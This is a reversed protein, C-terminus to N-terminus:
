IELYCDRYIIETYCDDRLVYEICCESYEEKIKNLNKVTDENNVKVSFLKIMVEEEFEEEEPIDHSEKSYKTESQYTWGNKQYWEAFTMTDKFKSKQYRKKMDDITCKSRNYYDDKEYWERFDEDGKTYYTALDDRIYYDVEPHKNIYGDVYTDTKLLEFTKNEEKARKCFYFTDRSVEESNVIYRM